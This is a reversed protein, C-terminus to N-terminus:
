QYDSDQEKMNNLLTLADEYFDRISDYVEQATDENYTHSSLNRKVHYDFWRELNELLKSMAAQRYINKINNEEFGQKIFLYRKLTKWSLEYSYEFRQIAADRTVDSYPETLIAKVTLLAKELSTYIIKDSM